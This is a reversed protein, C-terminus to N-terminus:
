SDEAEQEATIAIKTGIPIDNAGVTETHKKVEDKQHETQQTM